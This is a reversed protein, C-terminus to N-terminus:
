LRRVVGASVVFIYAKSQRADTRDSVYMSFASASTATCSDARDWADRFTARYKERKAPGGRKIAIAQERADAASIEALKGITIRQSRSGRRVEIIWSRSGSSTVRVGFGKVDDDFYIAQGRSPVAASKANRETIRM